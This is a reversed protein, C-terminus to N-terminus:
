RMKAKKKKRRNKYREELKAVNTSIVDTMKLSHYNCLMNLYYFVDGLEKTLEVKNLPKKDRVNKKLLELVEGTEGALGVSMIYHDRMTMKGIPKGSWMKGVWQQYRAVSKM